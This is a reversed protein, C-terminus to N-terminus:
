PQMRVKLASTVFLYISKLYNQDINNFVLTPKFNPDASLLIKLKAEFYRVCTFLHALSEQEGCFRCYSAEFMGLNHWKGNNYVLSYNLRLQILQHVQYRPLSQCLYKEAGYGSKLLYYHPMTSSLRSRHLDDMGLSEMHKKLISTRSLSLFNASNMEWVNTYGLKTFIDKIQTCWSYKHEPFKLSVRRLSMYAEYVLSDPPLSLIRSLVWLAQKLIEHSIHPSGTELRIFYRPTCSPLNLIRKYYHQQVKELIDAHRLGWIGAGYLTTSKIISEYLKKSLNLDFLKTKRLVAFVAGQAALGKTAFESSALNYQGNWHFPVGLYTYSKVIEIPSKNWNFKVSPSLPSYRRFVVVKTKTLNINLGKRALFRAAIDIKLQLTEMSPAVIAMDDAFLLIHVIINILRIGAEFTKELEGVIGELYLNFISPSASEGQLVGKRIRIPNTLGSCTSVRAEANEYLYAFVRLWKPSVGIELLVKWLLNHPPSDFAQSLDIFCVFLKQKRLLQM